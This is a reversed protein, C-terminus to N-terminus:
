QQEDVVCLSTQQMLLLLDNLEAHDESVWVCAASLGDVLIHKLRYM